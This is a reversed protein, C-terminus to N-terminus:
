TSIFVIILILLTLVFSEAVFLRLARRSHMLALLGLTWSFGLIAAFVLATPASIDSIFPLGFILSVIFWVFSAGYLVGFPGDLGYTHAKGRHIMFVVGFELGSLDEAFVVTVDYLLYGHLICRLIRQNAARGSAAVM